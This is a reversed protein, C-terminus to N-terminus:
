GSSIDGYLEPRRNPIFYKMKHKRIEKLEDMKIEALIMKEQNGMYSAIVRGEPNLVVAVGPFSFGERHKGVQNCAVIFLTNDFARGPLHRLWSQTKEQPSRRPSAHPIFIIEAGRLAMVRSIEPFHSEYCLQIGFTVGKYFFPDMKQGARYSGKEPPSLHSKRYLGLLGNPGAVVQSIYPKKGESIEIMGALIILGTTQALGDVREIIEESLSGSYISNPDKLMYGSISLEPFCIIDVGMEMAKLAFSEIRDLNKDIEGPPSNMCVAAIKLDNM